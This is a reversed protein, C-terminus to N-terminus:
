RMHAWTFCGPANKTEYSVANGVAHFDGACSDKEM